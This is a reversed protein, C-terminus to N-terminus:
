FRPIAGEKGHMESPARRSPVQGPFSPCYLFVTRCQGSPLATCFCLGVSGLNSICGQEGNMRMQRDRSCARAAPEVEGERGLWEEDKPDATEVSVTLGLVLQMNVSKLESSM